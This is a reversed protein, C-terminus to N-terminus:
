NYKKINKKFVDALDKEVDISKIDKKIHTALVIIDYGPPLLHKTKRYGERLLRKVRNKLVARKNYSNKRIIFAARNACSDAGRKLIFINILRGKFLAGRDFVNKITEKKKLRENKLFAHRRSERM